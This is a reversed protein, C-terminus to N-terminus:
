LKVPKFGDKTLIFIEEFGNRKLVQEAETYACDLYELNHCDSSIVAGFGCRKFEKLLREQPYPTFRYGRSIAGTNVEFYPIKGKLSEIAGIAYDLYEKSTIDFFNHKELHKACLDFHALIDFKGYNPLTSLQKYYEKAFQLGDGDFVTDILNKVEEASRDFAYFAGDMKLYHCAGILYEYGKPENDSYMEFELGCFIDLKGEYDKKLEAIKQKYDGEKEPRLSSYNSFSMYSHSSFGISDFGLKIAKECIEKPSNKGDCFTSHIHLNQKQKM